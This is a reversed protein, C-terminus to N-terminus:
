CVFSCVFWVFVFVLRLVLDVLGVQLFFFFGVGAFGVSSRMESWDAQGSYVLAGGGIACM